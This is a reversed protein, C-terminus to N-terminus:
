LDKTGSASQSHSTSPKIKYNECKTVTYSDAGFQFHDVSFNKNGILNWKSDEYGFAENFRNYVTYITQNDPLVFSINRCHRFSKKEFVIPYKTTIVINKNELGAFCHECINVFGEVYIEPPIFNKDNYENENIKEQKYYHRIRANEIRREIRKKMDSDMELIPPLVIEESGRDNRMNFFKIISIGKVQFGYEPNGNEDYKVYMEGCREWSGNM